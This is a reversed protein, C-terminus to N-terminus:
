RYKQAPSHFFGHVMCKSYARLYWFQYFATFSVPHQMRFWHDSVTCLYSVIVTIDVIHCM